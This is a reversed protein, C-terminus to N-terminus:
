YPYDIENFFDIIKKSIECAYKNRDDYRGNEYKKALIKIYKLFVKFMENQLYRHECSMKKAAKEFDNPCRNVYDSFQRAFVDNNDEGYRACCDNKFREYVKEMLFEHGMDTVENDGEILEVIQQNSLQYDEYERGDIEFKM